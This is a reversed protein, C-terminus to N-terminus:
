SPSCINCYCLPTYNYMLPLIRKCLPFFEKTSNFYVSIFVKVTNKITKFIVTNHQNNTYLGYFFLLSFLICLYDNIIEYIFLLSLSCYAFTTM